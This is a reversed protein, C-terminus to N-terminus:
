GDMEVHRMDDVTSGPNMVNLRDCSGAFGSLFSFRRWVRVPSELPTNLWSVHVNDASPLLSGSLCVAKMTLWNMGSAMPGPKLPWASSCPRLAAAPDQEEVEWSRPGPYTVDGRTAPKRARVTPFM